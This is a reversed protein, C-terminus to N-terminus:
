DSTADRPFKSTPDFTDMRMGFLDSLTNLYERRNLRRLVTQGAAGSIAERAETVQKTLASIAAARETEGPQDAKKPPMEGLNLQDIADQVELISAEDVLPFTMGDFRRDGKQKEAGHCEVCYRRLFASPVTDPEEATRGEAGALAVLAGALLMRRRM